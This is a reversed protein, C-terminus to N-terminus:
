RRIFHEAPDSRHNMVLTPAVHEDLPTSPQADAHHPKVGVLEYRHRTAPQPVVGPEGSTQRGRDSAWAIVGYGSHSSSV